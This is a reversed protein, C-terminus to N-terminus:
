PIPRTKIGLAALKEESLREADESFPDSLYFLTPEWAYGNWIRCQLKDGEWLSLIKGDMKFAFAMKEGPRIGFDRSPLNELENKKPSPYLWVTLLFGIQMGAIIFLGADGFMWFFIPLAAIAAVVKWGNNAHKINELLQM